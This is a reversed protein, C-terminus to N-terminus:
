FSLCATDTKKLNIRLMRIPINDRDKRHWLMHLSLIFLDQLEALSNIACNFLCIMRVNEFTTIGETVGKGEAISIM